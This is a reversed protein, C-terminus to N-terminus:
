DLNDYEGSSMSYSTLAIPGSNRNLSTGGAPFVMMVVQEQESMWVATVPVDSERSVYEYHSPRM